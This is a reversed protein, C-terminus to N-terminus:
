MAVCVCVCMCVCVCVCLYVRLYRLCLTCTGDRLHGESFESLPVFAARDRQGNCSHRRKHATSCAVSCTCRSCGPCTYKYKNLECMCCLTGLTNTEREIQATQDVSPSPPDTTPSASASSSSAAEAAEAAEAASSPSSSFPVFDSSETPEKRRTPSALSQSSSCESSSASWSPARASSSTLASSTNCLDAQLVGLLQQAAVGADQLVRESIDAPKGEMATSDSSEM